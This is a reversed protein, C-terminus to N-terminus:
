QNPEAYFVKRHVARKWEDSGLDPGNAGSDPAADPAKEHIRLKHNVAQM